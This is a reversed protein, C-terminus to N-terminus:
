AGDSEIDIDTEITANEVFVGLQDRLENYVDDEEDDSGISLVFVTEMEPVEDAATHGYLYLDRAYIRAYVRM